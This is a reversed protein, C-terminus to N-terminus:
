NNERWQKKKRKKSDVKTLQHKEKTIQETRTKNQKTDGRSKQKTTVLLNLCFIENM